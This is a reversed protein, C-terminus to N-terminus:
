FYAQALKDIAFSLATQWARARRNGQPSTSAAVSDTATSEQQAAVDDPHPTSPPRPQPAPWTPTTSVNTTPKEAPPPTSPPHPPPTSLPNLAPHPPISSFSRSASSSSSSSSTGAAFYRKVFDDKPEAPPHPKDNKKAEDAMKKWPGMVEREYAAEARKLAAEEAKKADEKRDCADIAAAIEARKKANKAEEAARQEEIARQAAAASERAAQKDAKITQQLNGTLESLTEAKEKRALKEEKTMLGMQRVTLPTNEKKQYKRIEKEYYEKSEIITNDNLVNHSECLEAIGILIEAAGANYGEYSSSKTVYYKFLIDDVAYPGTGMSLLDIYGSGQTALAQLKQEMVINDLNKSEIIAHAETLISRIATNENELEPIATESLLALQERARKLTLSDYVIPTNANQRQNAVNIRSELNSVTTELKLKEKQLEDIKKNNAELKNEQAKVISNQFEIVLSNEEQKRKVKESEILVQKYFDSLVSNSDNLLESRGVIDTGEGVISDLSVRKEIGKLAAMETIISEISGTEQRPTTSQSSSTTSSSGEDWAINPTEPTSSGSSSAPASTSPRSGWHPLPLRM